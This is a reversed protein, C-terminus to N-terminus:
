EEWNTPDCLPRLEGAAVRNPLMFDYRSPMNVYEHLLPSLRAVNAPEVAGYAEQWQGLARQLYRTNWLVLANIVLRLAGLQDEIGDRYRQRM